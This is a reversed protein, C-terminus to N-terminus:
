TKRDKRMMQEGHLVTAPTINGPRGTVGQEQFLRNLVAAKWEYWTMGAEDDRPPYEKTKIQITSETIKATRTPPHVWKTLFANM